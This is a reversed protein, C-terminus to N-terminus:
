RINEYKRGKSHKPAHRSLFIRRLQDAAFHDPSFRPTFVGSEPRPEKISIGSLQCTGYIVWGDLAMPFGRANIAVCCIMFIFMSYSTSRRCKAARAEQRLIGGSGPAMTTKDGKRMGSVSIWFFLGHLIYSYFFQRPCLFRLDLSYSGFGPTFLVFVLVIFKQVAPIYFSLHYDVVAFSNSFSDPTPRIAEQSVEQSVSAWGSIRSRPFVSQRDAASTWVTEGSTSAFLPIRGWFLGCTPKLSRRKGLLYPKTCQM